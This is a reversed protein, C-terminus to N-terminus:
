RLGLLARRLEASPPHAGIFGELLQYGLHGNAYDGIQRTNAFVRTRGETLWYTTTDGVKVGPAAAVLAEFDKEDAPDCAGGRCNREEGERYQAQVQAKSAEHLFQLLLVKPTRAALIEAADSSRRPLYLAAVYARVGFITLTRLAMGNLM